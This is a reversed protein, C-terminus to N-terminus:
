IGGVKVEWPWLLLQVVFLDTGEFDEILGSSRGVLELQWGM